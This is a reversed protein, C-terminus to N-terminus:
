AAPSGGAPPRLSSSGDAEPLPEEGFGEPDGLLMSLEEATLLHPAPAPEVYPMEGDAPLAGGPQVAGAGTPAPRVGSEDPEVLRLRPTGGGAREGASTLGAFGGGAVGSGASRIPTRVPVVFSSPAVGRTVPPATPATGAAAQAASATWASLDASTVMRLPQKSAGDEFFWLTSRPAYRQLADALDALLPLHGLSRPEVLIVVVARSPPQTTPLSAPASSAAGAGDEGDIPQGRNIRCAHALVTHADVCLVIAAGHRVLSETLKAPPCQDRAHVLLCVGRKAPIATGGPQSPVSRAPSSQGTPQQNSM